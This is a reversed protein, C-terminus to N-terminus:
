SLRQYPYGGQRILNYFAAGLSPAKGKWWAGHQNRGSTKAPVAGQQFVKFVGQPVGQYGYISGSQFRVLLRGSKPDYKFGYINSSDIPAQDIGDAQGRQGQPMTTQLRQILNALQQPNRLIANLEPAPYTRLFSVFADEQGGAMIWLLEAGMPIPAEGPPQQPPQEPPQPANKEEQGIEQRIQDIRDTTVTLEQALMGQFEDSLVEGSQLVDQIGRLLEDLLAELDALQRRRNM